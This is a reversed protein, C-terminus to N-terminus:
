QGLFSLYQNMLNEADREIDFLDISMGQDVKIKFRYAEKIFYFISRKWPTIDDHTMFQPAPIEM